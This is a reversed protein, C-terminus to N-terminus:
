DLGLRWDQIFTEEVGALKHLIVTRQENLTQFIDLKFSIALSSNRSDGNDNKYMILMIDECTSFPLLPPHEWSLMPPHQIDCCEEM